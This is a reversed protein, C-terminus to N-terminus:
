IYCILVIDKKSTNELRLSLIIHVEDNTEILNPIKEVRQLQYLLELLTNQM